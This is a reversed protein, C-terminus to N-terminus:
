FWASNVCLFGSFITFSHSPAFFFNSPTKETFYHANGLAGKQTVLNQWPWVRENGKLWKIARYITCLPQCYLNNKYMRMCLHINDPSSYNIVAWQLNALKANRLQNMGVNRIPQVHIQEKSERQVTEPGTKNKPNKKKTM